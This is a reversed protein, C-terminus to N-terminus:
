PPPKPEWRDKGYETGLWPSQQRAPIFRGWSPDLEVVHAEIRDVLGHVAHAPVNPLVMPGDHNNWGLWWYPGRDPNRAAFRKGSGRPPEATRPHVNFVPLNDVWHEHLDRGEKLESRITEDVGFDEGALDIAKSL